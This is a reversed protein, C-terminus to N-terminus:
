VEEDFYFPVNTSMGYYMGDDTNSEGGGPAMAECIIGGGIDRDEFIKAAEGAIKMAQQQGTGIPVFAHLWIQGDRRALNHGPAGITVGVGGAWTIEVLLFAAGNADRQFGENPFALPITSEISSWLTEIRTRITAYATDITEASV